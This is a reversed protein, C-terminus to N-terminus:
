GEGGAPTAARSSPASGLRPGFLEEAKQDVQQEDAGMAEAQLGTVFGGQGGTLAEHGTDKWDQGMRSTMEQASVDSELNQHLIDGYDVKPDTIEEESAHPNGAVANFAM